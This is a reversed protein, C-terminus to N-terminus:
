VCALRDAPGEKCKRGTPDVEARKEITGKHTIVPSGDPNTVTVMRYGVGPPQINDGRHFADDMGRRVKAKLQAADGDFWIQFPFPYPCLGNSKEPTKRLHQRTLSRVDRTAGVNTGQHTQELGSNSEEPRRNRNQQLAACAQGESADTSRRWSRAFSRM